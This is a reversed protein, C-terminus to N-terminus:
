PRALGKYAGAARQCLRRPHVMIGPPEQAGLARELRELGQELSAM